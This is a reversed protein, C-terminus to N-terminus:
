CSLAEHQTRPKRSGPFYNFWRSFLVHDDSDLWLDCAASLERCARSTASQRTKVSSPTTASFPFGFVKEVIGLRRM